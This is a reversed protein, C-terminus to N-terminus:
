ELEQFDSPERFEKLFVPSVTHRSFFQTLAREGTAQLCTEKGIELWRDTGRASLFREGNKIPIAFVSLALSSGHHLRRVPFAFNGGHVFGLSLIPFKRKIYRYIEAFSCFDGVGPTKLRNSLNGAIYQVFEEPPLPLRDAFERPRALTGRCVTEEENAPNPADAGLRAGRSCDVEAEVKLSLSTDQEQRFVFVLQKVLGTGQECASAQIRWFRLEPFGQLRAAIQEALKEELYSNVMSGILLSYAPAELRARISVQQEQANLAGTLLLLFIVGLRLSLVIFKVSTQM